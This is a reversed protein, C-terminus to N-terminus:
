SKNFINRIKRLTYESIGDSRLLWLLPAVMELLKKLMKHILVLIFNDKSDSYYKLLIFITTVIGFVITINVSLLTNTLNDTSTQTQNSSRVPREATSPTWAAHVM